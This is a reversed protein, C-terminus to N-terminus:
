ITLIKRYEKENHSLKIDKHFIFSYWIPTIVACTFGMCNPLASCIYTFHPFTTVKQYLM